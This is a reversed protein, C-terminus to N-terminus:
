TRAKIYYTVYVNVPRTESDGGKTCTNQEVTKKNDFGIADGKTTGHSEKDSTPLHPINAKFSYGNPKKTSCAEFLGPGATDSSTGVKAGRLFEGHYNPIRFTGKPEDEGYTKGIIGYLEAYNTKSLERGDCPLWRDNEPLGNGQLLVAGVPFIDKDM